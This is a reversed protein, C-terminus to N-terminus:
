LIKLSKKNIGVEALREVFDFIDKFRGRKEREETILDM